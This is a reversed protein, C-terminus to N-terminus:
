IQNAMLCTYKGISFNCTLSAINAELCTQQEIHDLDMRILHEAKHDVGRTLLMRVSQMGWCVWTVCAYTITGGISCGGLEGLNLNTFIDHVEFGVPVSQIRHENRM